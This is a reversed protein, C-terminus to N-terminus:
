QDSNTQTSHLYESLRLLAQDYGHLGQGIISFYCVDKILSVARFPERSYIDSLHVEAVPISLCAIADRLSVSHHCLGGPNLIIADAKERYEHLWDILQGEHNSQLVIINHNPSRDNLEKLYVQLDKTGYIEPQRIGVLNLNPGNIIPITWM